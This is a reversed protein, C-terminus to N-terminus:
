RGLDREFLDWQLSVTDVPKKSERAVRRADCTSASQTQFRPGLQKDPVKYFIVERLHCDNLLIKEDSSRGIASGAQSHSNRGSSSCESTSAISVRSSSRDTGSVLVRPVRLSTHWRQRSLWSATRVSSFTGSFVSSSASRASNPRKVARVATFRSLHMLTVSAPNRASPLREASVERSRALQGLTVSAVSRSTPLSVVSLDSETTPQRWTVSAPSNASQLRVASLDRLM